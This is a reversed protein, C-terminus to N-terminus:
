LELLIHTPDEISAKVHRLWSVAEKGDVVRHDYTLALYMMPRLVIEGDLGVPREQIAHLGLVGSQPPNVIPTSLLSGYVGGNSITFTGGKLEDLELSGGQAREAFDGIAREVEAFGLLEANRLVPVVLGRESGVAVGIDYYNRYVIEDGDVQANLGPFAKLAEVAARVFFSMFGLKVGHRALFAEGHTRRAEKVRSMDVENFTTLLAAQQEAEVLRKAITRRLPTMRVREELRLPDGAGASARGGAQAEILAHAEARGIRGSVQRRAEELGIGHERLMRRASPTIGAAEGPAGAEPAAETAPPESAAAAAATPGPPTAAPEQAAQAPAEGAPRPAQDDLVGLADGVKAVDGRELRREKLVGGAPSPFEVTAKDSDIEVLIEDRAVYDGVEKRWTGIQVEEISEGLDPVKLEITM